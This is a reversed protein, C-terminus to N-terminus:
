PRQGTPLDVTLESDFPQCSYKQVMKGPKGLLAGDVQSGSCIFVEGTATDIKLLAKERFEQGRINIFRYEGQFLQFRGPQTQSNGQALAVLPVGAVLSTLFRARALATPRM